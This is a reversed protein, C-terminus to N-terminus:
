FHHKLHTSPSIDSKLYFVRYAITFSSDWNRYLSPARLRIPPAMTRSYVSRCFLIDLEKLPAALSFIMDQTHCQYIGNTFNEPLSFLQVNVVAAASVAWIHCSVSMEEM